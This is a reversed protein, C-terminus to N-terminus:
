YSPRIPTFFTLVSKLPTTSNRNTNNSFTTKYRRVQSDLAERDGHIRQHSSATILYNDEVDEPIGSQLVPMSTIGATVIEHLSDDLFLGEATRLSIIHDPPVSQM